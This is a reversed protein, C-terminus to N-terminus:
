NALTTPAYYDTGESVTRAEEKRGEKRGEKRKKQTRAEERTNRRTTQTDEEGKEEENLFKFFNRKKEITANNRKGPILSITPTSKSFTREQM